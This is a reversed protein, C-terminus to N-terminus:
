FSMSTNYATNRMTWCCRIMFAYEYCNTRVQVSIATRAPIAQSKYPRLYCQIGVDVMKMTILLVDMVIAVIVGVTLVLEM